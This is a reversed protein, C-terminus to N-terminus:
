TRDLLCALKRSLKKAGSSLQQAKYVSVPGIFVAMNSPLSCNVFGDSDFYRAKVVFVAKDPKDCFNSEFFVGAPDSFYAGSAEDGFLVSHKDLVLGHKKVFDVCGLPFSHYKILFHEDEEGGVGPDLLEVTDDAFMVPWKVERYMANCECGETRLRRRADLFPYPSYYNSSGYDLSDPLKDILFNCSTYLRVLSSFVEHDRQRIMLAVYMKGDGGLLGNESNGVLLESQAVVGASILYALHYVGCCVQTALRRHAHDDRTCLDGIYLYPTKSTDLSNRYEVLCASVVVPTDARANALVVVLFDWAYPAFTSEVEEACLKFKHAVRDVFQEWIRGRRVWEPFFGRQVCFMNGGLYLVGDRDSVLKSNRSVWRVDLPPSSDGFAPFAWKSSNQLNIRVGLLVSDLRKILASWSKMDLIFTRSM